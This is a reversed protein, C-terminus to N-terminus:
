YTQLCGTDNSCYRGLPTGSRKKQLLLECAFDVCFSEDIIGKLLGYYLLEIFSIHTLKLINNILATNKEMLPGQKRKCPEEESVFKKISPKRIFDSLSAHEATDFNNFVFGTIEFNKNTLIGLTVSNWFLFCTEAENAIDFLVANDYICTRAVQDIRIHQKAAETDTIKEDLGMAFTHEIEIFTSRPFNGKCMTIDNILLLVLSEVTGTHRNFEVELRQNQHAYSLVSNAGYGLSVEIIGCPDITRAMVTIM